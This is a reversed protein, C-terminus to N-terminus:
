YALSRFIYWPKSYRSAYRQNPDEQVVQTMILYGLLVQLSHSVESWLHSSNPANEHTKKAKRLVHFINELYFAESFLGLVLVVIGEGVDEEESDGAELDEGSAGAGVPLGAAIVMAICGLQGM